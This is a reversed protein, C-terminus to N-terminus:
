DILLNWIIIYWLFSYLFLVESYPKGLIMLTKVRLWMDYCAYYSANSAIDTMAKEKVPHNFWGWPCKDFATTFLVSGQKIDQASTVVDDASNQDNLGNADSFIWLVKSADPRTPTKRLFEQNYFTLGNFLKKNTSVTDVKLTSIIDNIQCYTIAEERSSIGDFWVTTGNSNIKLVAVRVHDPHIMFNFSLSLQKMMSTIFVKVDDFQKHVSTDVMLILDIPSGTNFTSRLAQLPVAGTGNDRCVYCAEGHCQPDCGPLSTTTMSINFGSCCVFCLLCMLTGGIM